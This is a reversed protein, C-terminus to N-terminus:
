LCTSDNPSRKLSSTRKKLPVSSAHAIGSPLRWNKLAVNVVSVGACYMM